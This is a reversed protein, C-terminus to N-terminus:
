VQTTGASHQCAALGSPSNLRAPHVTPGPNSKWSKSITVAPEAASACIVDSPASKAASAYVHLPLNAPFVVSSDILPFMMFRVIVRVATAIARMTADESTRDETVGEAVCRTGCNSFACTFTQFDVMTGFAGNGNCRWSWPRTITARCPPVIFM